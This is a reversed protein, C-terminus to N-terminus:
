TCLSRASVCMYGSTYILSLHACVSCPVCLCRCHVCAVSVCVCLCLPGSLYGARTPLLCVSWVSQCVCLCLLVECLCTLTFVAPPKQSRSTYVGEREKRERGRGMGVRAQGPQSPSIKPLLISISVYPLSQAGAASRTPSYILPQIEAGDPGEGGMYPAIRPLNRPSRLFAAQHQFNGQLHSLGVAEGELPFNM